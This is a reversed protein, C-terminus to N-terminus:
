ENRLYIGISVLCSIRPLVPGNPTSSGGQVAIRIRPTLTEAMGLHPHEKFRSRPTTDQWNWGDGFKNSLVEGYDYVSYVFYDVVASNPSGQYLITYDTIRVYVKMRSYGGIEVTGLDFEESYVWGSSLEPTWTLNYDEVVSIVKWSPGQPEGNMQTVKLNGEEDLPFNVVNVDTTPKGTGLVQNNYFLSGLLVSVIAVSLIMLYRKKIVTDGGERKM